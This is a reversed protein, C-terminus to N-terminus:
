VVHNCQGFFVIKNQVLILVLNQMNSAAFHEKAGSGYSSTKNYREQTPEKKEKPM